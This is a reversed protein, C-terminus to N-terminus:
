THESGMADRETKLTFIAHPPTEEYDNPGYTDDVRAVEYACHNIGGRDPRHCLLLTHHDADGPRVV